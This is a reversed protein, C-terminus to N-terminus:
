CAVDKLDVKLVDKINLVKKETVKGICSYVAGEFLEEFRKQNQPAITVLIRSQSESFMIIKNIIDTNQIKGIPVLSLDIEAGLDGAILSKALAIVLGGLNPAIASAIIGDKIAQNYREYLKRASKADVKPVNNNGIGSYLQYESRGLEDLTEGLVYILDGPMKVDLSVANEINEIIGIASILLSPPASIIVKEGNEDYGKFDNFMSDKGSIFPTKFATAFDYCAEAAKKLQWLREPNYADCWCFNDLLALHNINGGAAVYNRIATDIACAAMHYTDIEGYSSGFGQSKVVGKNSSLIPRSVIAESCVRGKGQLPKLVSSGQVEHDYQVVIFEKSCINPRSLMEKLEIALSPSSTTMGACLAPLGKSWPKTQLHVKPNGDHLFETEIDMIVTGEPCKVVAKGSENFEGIVCVEVDHKKMIQKFMPLNEEPVALTMREQSESIWIEWQAMGDNKLLVKSLDVEFGDKGMEGISSSLGGAGNDTIANYLDLDRAKIVANSLKKQTIPDGIQVITSPSNGSLAESSFTAGHIGDRGVRGGIIVIKDGNKPGKIHSPANNINRPIIGISGVFVLPKGCFRDDFYVSGLQTPIGSCNGAVNVGHIVEKMIYKPPLIEDTREKDRYFKGKAEKAFCFYYTNMIPEAGKGFGVIDRNVGLVGTMAGGFPDLASPSNHTEVKDVILYDDDFIIGGANDSFVSVCIDSNIERTARKIYHAYLGDKIEDIPSCFINHKCHESWTQALSELEIDYPNRGLKKFYDKIAKMAALSLGLTGNGDIGDRSIKELEQDSVNLDVSKAGNSSSIVGTSEKTMGAKKETMGTSSVPIWEKKEQDRAPIVGSHTNLSKYKGYYKWSYNNNEKCILTCYETIPNFEQKIDDETPLDGQSLILKSSRAKIEIPTMGARSAPIQTKEKQIGTDLVPIVFSPAPIVPQDIYGKSILYERVIQKVTNGVNDTMGPLFSIELGWKAQPEIFDYPVEELNENYSYYRCDQIVKNYFLGCIEEYLKSPLEKRIYISYVNVLWRCGIQECKNLVEIRINAM